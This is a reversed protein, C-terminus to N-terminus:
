CYFQFRFTEKQVELGHRGTELLQSIIKLYKYSKISLYIYTFRGYTAM